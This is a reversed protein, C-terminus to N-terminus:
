YDVERTSSLLRRAPARVGAPLYRYLRRLAPYILLVRPLGLERIARKQTKMLMNQKESYQFTKEWFSDHHIFHTGLVTELAAVRWGAKVISIWLNLDILSPVDPYGGADAWARRRFMAITHAFPVAKAMMRVLEQHGAPPRRTFRAKRISDEVNYAGGLLGVHPHNNMFSVQAQLRESSSLDDIDQNAILDTSAHEIAANLAKARGIRPYPLLRVNLNNFEITNRRLVEETDDTSGDNVILWEFNECKQLSINEFAKRIYPSGNYITTILSAERM